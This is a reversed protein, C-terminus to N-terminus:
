MIKVPVGLGTFCDTQLNPAQNEDFKPAFVAGVSKYKGGAAKNYPLLEVTVLNTADKVWLATQTLNEESDNVGPIVPIRAVFPVGSQKLQQLNKYILTNDVGTYEKHIIPDTHKIDFMVLDMERILAAFTEEPAHGCTEIACHLGQLRQRVALVFPTQMACEGGSFTVGGGNLKLLDANELIKDALAQEDWWKGAIRICSRPCAPICKGCATCGDPHECVQKCMGCEVCLSSVVREPRFKLGEPNHCWNCRLPCGKLFVTTRIGPGDFLAFEEVDFILGKQLEM